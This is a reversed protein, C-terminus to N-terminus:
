PTTCPMWLRGPHEIVGPDIDTIPTGFDIRGLHQLVFPTVSVLVVGVLLWLSNAERSPENHNTLAM